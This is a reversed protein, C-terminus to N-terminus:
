IAGQGHLHLYQDFWYHLVIQHTSEVWGYRAPPTHFNLDGALTGVYEGWTETM